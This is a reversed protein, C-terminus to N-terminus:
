EIFCQDIQIKFTGNGTFGQETDAVVTLFYFLENTLHYHMLNVGQRHTAVTSFQLKLDSVRFISLQDRRGIRKYRDSICMSKETVHRLESFLEQM